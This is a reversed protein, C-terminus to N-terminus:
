RQVNKVFICFLYALRACIKVTCGSLDDDFGNPVKFNYNTNQYKSVLFAESSAQILYPILFHI